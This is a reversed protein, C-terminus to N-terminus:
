LTTIKPQQQDAGCFYVALMDSDHCHGQTPAGWLSVLLTDKGNHEFVFKTTQKDQDYATKRGWCVQAGKIFVRLAQIVVNPKYLTNDYQTNDYSERCTSQIWLEPHQRQRAQYGQADTIRM